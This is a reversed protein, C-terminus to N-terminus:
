GDHDGTEDDWLAVRRAVELRGRRLHTRVTEEGCDLIEAIDPVSRDELFRLALVQAQRRPLARVVAWLEESEESIRPDDPRERRLHLLLRVETTRRRAHSVCRNTVVRRIWGEPSEYRSVRGWQRYAALFGEQAMEEAVDRRNTLVFALRVVAAYERRYFADFSREGEVVGIRTEEQTM